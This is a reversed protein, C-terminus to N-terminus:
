EAYKVNKGAKLVTCKKYQYVILFIMFPMLIIPETMNTLIFVASFAIERFREKKRCRWISIIFPYLAILLGFIGMTYGLTILGNSSGRGLNQAMEFVEYNKYGWGFVPRQQILKIGDIFDRMRLYYSGNVHSSSLRKITWVIYIGCFTAIGLPLVLMIKSRKNMKINEILYVTFLGIGICIGTTSFTLLISLLLIMMHTKQKKEKFFIFYYLAFILYVAYVGPEWFMSQLRFIKIGLIPFSRLYIGAAYFFGVYRRYFTLDNGHAVYDYPLDIKLINVFFFMILSLAAIFIIIQYIRKLFCNIDLKKSILLLVFALIWLIRLSFGFITKRYLLFELALYGACGIMIFLAKKMAKASRVYRFEYIVCLGILGVSLLRFVFADESVSIAASGSLYILLFCITCELLMKFSIKVKLM